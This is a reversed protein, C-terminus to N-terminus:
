TDSTERGADASSSLFRRDELDMDLRVDCAFARISLALTIGDDCSKALRSMAQLEERQHRHDERLRALARGAAATRPLIKALVREEARTHDDLAAALDAFVGGLEVASCAGGRIVEVAKADLITLMARLREHQAVLIERVRDEDIEEDVFKSPQWHRRRDIARGM